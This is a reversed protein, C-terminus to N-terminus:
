CRLAHFDFFRGSRDCYAIGARELDFRLMEATRAPLTFFISDPSLLAVRSALAEVLYTDPLAISAEDRNKTYGAVVSVTTGDRGFQFSGVRLSALEKRRLGAHPSLWYCLARDPGTMGKYIPGNRAAEILRHLEDLSLSRRDHRRDENVNYRKMKFTPDAVLLGKSRACNVFAR